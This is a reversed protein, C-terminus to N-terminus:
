LFLFLSSILFLILIAIVYITIRTSFNIYLRKKLTVKNSGEYTVVEHKTRHKSLDNYEDMIDSDINIKKFTFDVKEIIKEEEIKNSM